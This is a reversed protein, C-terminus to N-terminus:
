TVRPLWPATQTCPWGMCRYGVRVAVPGPPTLTYLCFNSPTALQRRGRVEKAHGEQVCLSKQTEVDWLRWTKDFSTTAIYKGALFLVVCCEPNSCPPALALRSPKRREGSPHFAIRALRAAHGSLTGIPKTSTMSWLLAKCDAGASALNTQPTHTGDCCDTQLLLLM